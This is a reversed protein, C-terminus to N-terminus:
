RRNYLLAENWVLIGTTHPKSGPSWEFGDLKIRPDDLWDSRCNNRLYRLLFSLLFSKGQRYAGAVSVVVVPKDKVRDDLLIAELQSENLDFSHDENIHLIQVAMGSSYSSSVVDTFHLCIDGFTTSGSM